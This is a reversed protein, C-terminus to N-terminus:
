FVSSNDILNYKINTFGQVKDDLGQSGFQNEFTKVESMYSSDPLINSQADSFQRDNTFRINDSLTNYAPHAIADNLDANENEKINDKINDKINTLDDNKNQLILDNENM